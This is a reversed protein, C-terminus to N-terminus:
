KESFDRYQNLLKSLVVNSADDVTTINAKFFVTKRIQQLHHSEENGTDNRHMLYNRFSDKYWKPGESYTYGYHLFIEQGKAINVMNLTMIALVVGFQASDYHVLLSNQRTFCHNIKHGWTSRYKSKMQGIDTPMQTYENCPLTSSYKEFREKFHREYEDELDIWDKTGKRTRKLLEM